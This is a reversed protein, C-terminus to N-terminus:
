QRRAVFDCGLEFAEEPLLPFLLVPMTPPRSSKPTSPACSGSTPRSSSHWWSRPTSSAARRRPCAAASTVPSGPMPLVRSSPSRIAWAARSRSTRGRRRTRDVRCSAVTRVRARPAPTRAPSWRPRACRPSGASRAPRRRRWGAARAPPCRRARASRLPSARRSRPRASVCAPAGRPRRRGSPRDRMARPVRRGEGDRGRGARPQLSGGTARRGRRRRTM